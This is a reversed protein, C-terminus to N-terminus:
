NPQVNFHDVAMNTMSFQFLRNHLFFFLLPIPPNTSPNRKHSGPPRLTLAENMTGWSMIEVTWLPNTELILMDLQHCLSGSIVASVCSHLGRLVGDGGLGVRCEVWLLRTIGLLFACLILRAAVERCFVSTIM